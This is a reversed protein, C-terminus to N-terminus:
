PVEKRATLVDRLSQHIALLGFHDDCARCFCIGDVCRLSAFWERGMAGCGPCSQFDIPAVSQWAADGIWLRAEGATRGTAITWDVRGATNDPRGEKLAATLTDAAYTTSSMAANEFIRIVVFVSM